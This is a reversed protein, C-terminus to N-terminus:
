YPGITPPNNRLFDRPGRVTYYPYATQGVPPGQNFTPYEPYTQGCPCMGYGSGHGCGCFGGAIGDVLRRCGNGCCSPDGCSCYGDAGCSGGNPCCGNGCNGGVPCGCDTDCACSSDCSGAYAALQVAPEPGPKRFDRTITPRPARRSTAIRNATMGGSACGSALLCLIGALAICQKM